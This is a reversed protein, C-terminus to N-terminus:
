KSGRLKLKLGANIDTRQRAKINTNYYIATGGGRHVDQRDTRIINYGDIHLEDNTDTANLWTETLCMIDFPNNHMLIRFEDLHGPLSRINLHGVNLGPQNLVPQNWGPNPSVDGALLILAALSCYKVLHCVRSLKLPLPIKTSKTVVRRATTLLEVRTQSKSISFSCSISGTRIATEVPMLGRLLIYFLYCIYMRQLTGNVWPAEAMSSECMM